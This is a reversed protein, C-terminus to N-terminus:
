FYSNFIDVVKTSIRKLLDKEEVTKREGKECGYKSLGIATSLRVIDLSSIDGKVDKTIGMKVPHSLKGELFEIIGDAFSLGGSLVISAVRGGTKLFKDVKSNIISILNNLEVSDKFDGKIDMAGISIIGFDCISGAFFISAETISAGIDLLLVGENKDDESLLSAGDAMGTFVIEKVDYGADNICKYINQIQHSDATILYVECNLRSAYLGLPNKIWSQDDISFNHVIKHVIERDFALHITSAANICRDMDMKTVERGRLSLPIMGKSIVGKIHPGSINVYIDGPAKSTIKDRIRTLIRSASDVAENFDVILGRSVGNSPGTAHAIINFAGDKDIQGSVAAIKSSGIDLGTIITPKKM